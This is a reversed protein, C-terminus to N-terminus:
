EGLMAIFHDIDYANVAGDRNCDARIRECNPYLSEYDCLPSMACIFGDIDYSDVESDCNMDGYYIGTWGVIRALMWWFARGKLNCNLPRSHACSCDACLESDPHAACWEDAWNHRVGDVWYDCDDEANLDLFYNGDPDYSEIDAFDFLIGGTALVHDRIQNNRQNLNGDEGTGNLHGTMYIFTVNQYDAILGSMLDLYIQMNEPTTDAQGCWSWLVCNRDNGPTELMARTRVEWTYYDPNGLDGSPYYDWMSLGGLTGDHDWWYLSGPPNKILNMGTVLQSGHSTHGYSLRFEAKATEIWETPIKSLETCNHDIIIAEQSMGQGATLGVTACVMLLLVMTTRRFM